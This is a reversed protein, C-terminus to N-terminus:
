KAGGVIGIAGDNLGYVGYAKQKSSQIQSLINNFKNEQLNM